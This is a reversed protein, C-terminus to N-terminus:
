QKIIQKLIISTDIKWSNYGSLDNNGLYVLQSKGNDGPSKIIIFITCIHTTKTIKNTEM